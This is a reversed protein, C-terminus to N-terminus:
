GLDFEHGASDNQSQRYPHVHTQGLFLWVTRSPLRWRGLCIAGSSRTAGSDQASYYTKDLIATVTWTM